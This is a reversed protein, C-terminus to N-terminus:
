KRCHRNTINAMEQELRSSNALFGGNNSRCVCATYVSIFTNVATTHCTLQHIHSLPECQSHPSSHQPSHVLSDHLLLLAQKNFLTQIGSVPGWYETLSNSVRQLIVSQDSRKWVYVMFLNDWNVVPCHNCVVHCPQNLWDCMGTSIM